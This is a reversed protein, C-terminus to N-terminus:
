PPPPTRSQQPSALSRHPVASNQACPTGRATVKLFEKLRRPDQIYDVLIHLDHQVERIKVGLDSLKTRQRLVNHQQSAAREQMEAILAELSTNQKHFHELKGDMEKILEKM